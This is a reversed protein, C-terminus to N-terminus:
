VDPSEMGAQQADKMTMSWFDSVKNESCRFASASRGPPDVDAAQCARLWTMPLYQTSAAGPLCQPFMVLARIAVKYSLRRQSLSRHSLREHPLIDEM